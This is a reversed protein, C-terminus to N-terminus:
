PQSRASGTAAAAQATAPGQSGSQAAARISPQEMMTSSTMLFCTVSWWSMQLSMWMHQGVYHIFVGTESPARLRIAAGKLLAEVRLFGCGKEARLIRTAGGEPLVCTFLMVRDGETHLANM